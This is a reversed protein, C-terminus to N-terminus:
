IERYDEFDGGPYIWYLYEHRYYCLKAIQCWLSLFTLSLLAYCCCYVCVIGDIFWTCCGKDKFKPCLPNRNNATESDSEECWYTIHENYPNWALHYLLFLPQNTPQKPKLPLKLVFLSNLAMILVVFISSQLLSDHTLTLIILFKM